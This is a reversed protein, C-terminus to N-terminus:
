QSKPKPANKKPFIVLKRYFGDGMSQTRVGSDSKLALHVIRRDHANMQGVTTPKGTKKAKQALREAMQMLQNKRNELYGEIDVQVRIRTKNQRNIAKEVLYQIAELTQGRKGILIAANENKINFLVRGSNQEVTFTAGEAIHDIIRQLVNKGMTVAEESYEDAEATTEELQPEVQPLEIEPLEPQPEVVPTENEPPVPQPEAVPTENELPEPQSKVSSAEKMPRHRPNKGTPATKEPVAVRIKAKKTGVLGFIGSSGYSIVDYKLSAKPIKFKKSAKQAANEIDKGEFEVYSPM